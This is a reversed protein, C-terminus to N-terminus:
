GACLSCGGGGGMAGGTEAVGPMAVGAVFAGRFLAALGVEIVWHIAQSDIAGDHRVLWPSAVAAIALALGAFFRVLGSWYGGFLGWLMLLPSVFLIQGKFM